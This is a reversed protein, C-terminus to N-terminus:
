LAQTAVLPPNGLFMGKQKQTLKSPPVDDDSSSVWETGIHATWHICVRDLVKRCFVCPVSTGMNGDCKIRCIVFKGVKRHVWHSFASPQVGEIKSRHRLYQLLRREACMHPTNGVIHIEKTKTTECTVM